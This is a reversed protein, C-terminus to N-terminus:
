SWRYETPPKKYESGLLHSIFDSLKEVKEGYDNEQVGEFELNYFRKSMPKAFTIRVSPHLLRCCYINFIRFAPDLDILADFSVSKLEKIVNSRMVRWLTPKSIESLKVPHDLLLELSGHEPIDSSIGPLLLTVAHKSFLQLFQSVSKSNASVLDADPLIILIKSANNLQEHFEIPKERLFPNVFTTIWFTSLKDFLNM